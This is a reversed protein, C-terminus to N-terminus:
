TGKGSDSKIFSIDGKIFRYGWYLILPAVVFFVLGLEDDNSIGGAVLFIPWLLYLISAVLAIRDKKNM